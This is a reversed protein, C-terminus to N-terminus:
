RAEYHWQKLLTERCNAKDPCVWVTHPLHLSVEIGKDTRGASMRTYLTFWCPAKDCKAKYSFMHSSKPGLKASMENLTLHVDSDLTRYKLRGDTISFSEPEVTVIMPRLSNNTVTFYGSAKGHGYESIIPSVTQGVVGSALLLFGYLLALWKWNIKM